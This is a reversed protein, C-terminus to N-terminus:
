TLGSWMMGMAGLFLGTSFMAFGAAYSLDEGHGRAVLTHYVSRSEWAIFYGLIALGLELIM